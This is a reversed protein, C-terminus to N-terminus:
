LSSCLSCSITSSLVETDDIFDDVDDDDTDSRPEHCHGCVFPESESLVHDLKACHQHFVRPCEDCCIVEGGDGCEWCESDHSSTVSADDNHGDTESDSRDIEIIAHRDEDESDSV